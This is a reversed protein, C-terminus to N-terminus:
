ITSVGEYEFSAYLGVIRLLVKKTEKLGEQIINSYYRFCELVAKSRM